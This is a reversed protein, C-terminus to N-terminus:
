FERKIIMYGNFEVNCEYDNAITSVLFVDEKGENNKFTFKIILNRPNHESYIGKNTKISLSSDAEYTREAYYQSLIDSVPENYLLETTINQPQISKIDIHMEDHMKDMM